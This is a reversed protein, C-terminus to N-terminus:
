PKRHTVIRVVKSAGGPRHAIYILGIVMNAIRCGDMTRPLYKILTNLICSQKGM